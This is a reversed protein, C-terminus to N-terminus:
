EVGATKMLARAEAGALYELFAQALPTATPTPVAVYNTYSQLEAPVPGAYRLRAGTYLRIATPAGFGIEGPGAAMLHGMVSEADPFRLTRAALEDTVGLKQIMGEIGVGSSARNYVVAKAHQLTTKLAMPTSIDPVPGGAPVAVGLGIRGLPVPKSLVRAAQTLEVVLTDPVAVLEAAFPAVSLQRIEASTAFQLRVANGTQRRFGDAVAAMAPELAGASLVKLEAAHSASILAASCVLCVLRRWRLMNM